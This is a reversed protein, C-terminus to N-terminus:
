YDRCDNTLRVDPDTGTICDCSGGFVFGGNGDPSKCQFACNDGLCDAACKYGECRMGPVM